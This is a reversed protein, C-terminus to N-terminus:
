FSAESGYDCVQPNSGRCHWSARDMALLIVLTRPNKISHGPNTHPLLHSRHEALSQWVAQTVIIWSATDFKTQCKFYDGPLLRCAGISSTAKNPFITHDKELIVPGFM